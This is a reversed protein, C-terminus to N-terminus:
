EQAQLEVRMVDLDAYVHNFSAKRSTCAKRFFKDLNFAIRPLYGLDEMLSFFFFFIAMPPLMVSIVWTLTSYIGDILLSILWSPMRIYALCLILKEQIAEFFVSLIKSPFNSGVITLWFIIALFTIMIPLGFIKSTLIKDIKRDRMSYSTNNYSTVKKCTDECSNLIYSVILDKFNDNELGNLQLIKKSNAILDYIDKNNKLTNNFINSDISNIIKNDNDLLKLAIWRSLYKQENPIIQEIKMTVKQLIDEIIPSYVPINPKPTYTGSCVSYIRQM